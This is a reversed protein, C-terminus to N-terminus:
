RVYLSFHLAHANNHARAVNVPQTRAFMNCQKQGASAFHMLCRGLYLLLYICLAKPHFNLRIKRPYGGGGGHQFCITEHLLHIGFCIALVIRLQPLHPEKTPARM